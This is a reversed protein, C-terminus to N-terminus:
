RRAGWGSGRLVSAAKAPVRRPTLTPEGGRRATVCAFRGDANASSARWGFLRTLFVIVDVLFHGPTIAGDRRRAAVVIVIVFMAKLLGIGALGAQMLVKGVM